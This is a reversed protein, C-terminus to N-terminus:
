KNAKKFKDLKPEFAEKVHWEKSLDLWLALGQWRGFPAYHERIAKEVNGKVPGHILPFKKVCWSDLGLGDHRGFLKCLNEASYQGFGNSQRIIRILDATEGEHECWNECDVTGSEVKDAFEKFFRARYGTKMENRFFDESKASMIAPSPFVKRGSPTKSGLAEVFRTVMIRTLSWSCNTTCLMKVADEFVSAGRLMRGAGINKAWAFDKGGLKYFEALNLDIGLMGRLMAHADENSRGTWKGQRNAEVEITSKQNQRIAFDTPKGGIWGATHLIGSAPDWTFPELQMCGHSYVVSRLQFDAPTQLQIREIPM